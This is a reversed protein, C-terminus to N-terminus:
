MLGFECLAATGYYAFREVMEVVGISYILWSVKGHVHRLTEFEEATPEPESLYDSEAADGAPPAGASSSRPKEDPVHAKSVEAIDLNAADSAM